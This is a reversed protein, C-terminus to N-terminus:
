EPIKEKPEVAQVAVNVYEATVCNDLVVPTPRWGLAAARVAQVNQSASTYVLIERYLSNFYSSHTCDM